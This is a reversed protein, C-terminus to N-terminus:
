RNGINKEYIKDMEEDYIDWECAMCDIFINHEKKVILNYLMNALRKNNKCNLHCERFDKAITHNIKCTEFFKEELRRTQILDKLNFKLRPFHNLYKTKELHSVKDLNKIIPFDISPLNFEVTFPFINILYIGEDKCLQNVEKVINLSVFQLLKSSFINKRIKNIADLDPDPLYGINWAKSELGPPMCPWRECNTHSFVIVDYNRYNKIFTEYGYWHSSGGMAYRGFHNDNLLQALLRPWPLCNEDIDNFAAYSDGFIGLKM